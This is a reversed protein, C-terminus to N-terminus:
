NGTGLGPGALVIQGSWASQDGRQIQAQVPLVRANVRVQQLWQALAGPAVGKLTVTARDGQQALSANAGLARTAEELARLAAERGPPPTANQTRLVEASAAQAQVLALEKDLKAHRAKSQRLTDVAPALGVWWLLGLGVVWAAIRVLRQERPSLGQMTVSLRQGLSALPSLDPKRAPGAM